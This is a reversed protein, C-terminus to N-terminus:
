GDDREGSGKAGNDDSGNGNGNLDADQTQAPEAGEIAQEVAEEVAEHAAGNGNSETMEGLHAVSVVHEAADIKFLTVGRTSRGAIRIDEVPCRILKGANTVLMIQDGPSVPFAAAVKAESGRGLNMLDIGKGGRKTIRYEYASSRKGFGADSITLIFQETAAMEFFRAESLTVAEGNSEEDDPSVVPEEDGGASRRLTSAQKLYALREASSADV